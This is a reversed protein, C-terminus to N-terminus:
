AGLKERLAAFMVELPPEQGTWRRFGEAGQHVLMGLGYVVRCGRAAAERLLPTQRPNYVIDCVVLEPRLGRPEVPLPDAEPHMGLSTANVLVECAEVAAGLAAPERPVAAACPRVRANIDAAIAEARAATRNCLVVERAGHFAMTMAIGRAAGGGGLLLVSRGELTIGGETELTRVFGLGDTNYGTSRGEALAVTNVAGIIGALEDVADLHEMIRVKHPITINYGAFNMCALGAAVRGLRDADVEIPLYHFNLGLAAFARNHMVPSLSHGLPHGLLGVLRTNVDITM